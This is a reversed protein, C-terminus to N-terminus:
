YQKLAIANAATQTRRQGMRKFFEIVKGPLMRGLQHSLWILAGLLFGGDEGPLLASGVKALAQNQTVFERIQEEYCSFARQYDGHAAALEGALVYAGVLAVSTGQGAVPAVAYGADGVLAVRGRTWHPMHIQAMCDFYFDPSDKMHALFQPVEWGGEQFHKRLFAEQEERSLADLLKRSGFAFGAKALGNRPAYAIAFGKPSFYEIETRDLGLFNPISYFSVYLGLRKLFEDEDGFALKRTVSHLGDAGIVLDFTRAPSHAFEVLVGSENQTLKTIRDGFLCTGPSCGSLLIRCLEGRVIELDDGTRVGMLEPSSEYVIKGSANAYLARQIETRASLIEAHLGMRKIVEIAVGRIDLKYGETRLSSHKEVVTPTFGFRQLWYAMTLGAVGAGSILINRNKMENNNTNM